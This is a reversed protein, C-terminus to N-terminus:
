GLFAPAVIQRNCEADKGSGPLDGAVFEVLVFEGALQGQGPLQAPHAARQGHGVLGRV